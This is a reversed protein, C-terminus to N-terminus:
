EEFEGAPDYVGGDVPLPGHEPPEEQGATLAALVGLRM